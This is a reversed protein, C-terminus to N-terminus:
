CNQRHFNKLHYKIINSNGSLLGFVFSYGFSLPVNSPTIHFALGKGLRNDLKNYRSKFKRINAKRSWFSFAMLDPYNSAEKSKRIIKSLNDLFDIALESFIVNPLTKVSNTGAILEIENLSNLQIM